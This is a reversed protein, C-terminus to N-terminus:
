NIKDVKNSIRIIGATSLGLMLKSSYFSNPVLSYRMVNKAHILPRRQMVHFKVNCFFEFSTLMLRKGFLCNRGSKNCM